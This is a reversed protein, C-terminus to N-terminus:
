LPHYPSVAKKVEEVVREVERDVATSSPIDPDWLSEVDPARGMLASYLSAWAEPIEDEVEWEVMTGFMLTWSRAVASPQYGGGGAAVWRGECLRHALRHLEDGIRWHAATTLNLHTLPDSFHTDVGLQSVIVEPRFVEALPSVIDRFVQLYAADGTHPPLPVNVSYGEGEGEGIEHVFGTGPFLYRGDEHLSITLVRPEDYFSYQVGDGHHADVDVYLIRSLGEELLTQITIALDNFICFGSARSRSAHHFGGGLNFAHKAKSSTVTRGAELTGGVHLASAEYMRPFIPNDPTGLGYEMYRGGIGEPDKGSARVAEVYERSHILLIEEEASEAPVEKVGRRQLLGLESILERALKIREQRLSHAGGFDYSLFGEDYVLLVSGSM